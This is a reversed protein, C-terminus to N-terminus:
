RFSFDGPAVDIVVEKVPEKPRAARRLVAPAHMPCGCLPCGERLLEPALMSAGLGLATAVTKRTSARM